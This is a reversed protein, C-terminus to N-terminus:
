DQVLLEAIFSTIAYFIYLILTFITFYVIRWAKDKQGSVCYYYIFPIYVVTYIITIAITTAKSFFIPTSLLVLIFFILSVIIYVILPDFKSM